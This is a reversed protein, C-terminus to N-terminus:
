FCFKTTYFSKKKNTQLNIFSVFEPVNHSHIVLLDKLVHVFQIIIEQVVIPVSVVLIQVPILVNKILVLEILLVNLILSVNLDVNHHHELLVINAHVFQKSMLIEVTVIQVVHHHYVLIKM